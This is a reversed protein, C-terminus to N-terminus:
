QTRYYRPSGSDVAGSIIASRRWNKIRWRPDHNMRSYGGVNPQLQKSAQLIAEEYMDNFSTNSIMKALVGSLIVHHLDTPFLDVSYPPGDSKKLYWVDATGSVSGVFTLRLDGDASNQDFYYGMTEDTDDTGYPDNEYRWNLYDTITIFSRLPRNLSGSTIAVIRGIYNPMEYTQTGNILTLVYKETRLARKISERTMMDEIVMDIWRDSLASLNSESPLVPQGNVMRTHAQVVAPTAVVLDIIGQRTM